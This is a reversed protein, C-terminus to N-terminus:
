APARAVRYLGIGIVAGTLVLSAWGAWQRGGGEHLYHFHEPWLGLAALRGTNAIITAAVAALAVPVLRRSLPIDLLQTLVVLLLLAISVNALASCSGAVVFPTSGDFSRFVNGETPLGTGAGIILAELRTIEPGLLAICAPGWLLPGSAALAILALKRLPTGPATTRLLYLSALFLAAAAAAMVPFFACLLLAAAVYKDARRPPVPAHDDLAIRVIAYFAFWLVANVGLLSVLATGYGSALAASIRPAVGNVLAVALLLAFLDTRAPWGGQAGAPRSAV